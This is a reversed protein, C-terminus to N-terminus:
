FRWGTSFQLEIPDNPKAQNYAEVAKPILNENQNLSSYTFFFGGLAFSAGGIRFAQTVAQSSGSSFQKGILNSFVFMLIGLTGIYASTKSDKLNSQYEEILQNSAGVDKVFYKLTSADQSLPSDVSYIEGRYSFPRDCGLPVIDKPKRLPSPIGTQCPARPPESTEAAIAISSPLILSIVLLGHLPNFIRPNRVFPKMQNVGQILAFFGECKLDIGTYFHFFAFGSERRSLVIKIRLM